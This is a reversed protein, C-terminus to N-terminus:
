SLEVGQDFNGSGADTPSIPAWEVSSLQSDYLLIINIEEQGLKLSLSGVLHLPSLFCNVSAAMPAMRSCSVREEAM